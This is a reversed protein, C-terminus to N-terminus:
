VKNNKCRVFLILNPRSKKCVQSVDHGRCTNNNQKFKYLKKKDPNVRTKM